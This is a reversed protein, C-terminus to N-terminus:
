REFKIKLREYIEREKRLKRESSKQRLEARRQRAEYEKDTEERIGVARLDITEYQGVEKLRTAGFEAKLYQLYEIAENILKGDFEEVLDVDILYEITGKM